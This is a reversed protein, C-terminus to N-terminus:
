SGAYASQLRHEVPRPRGGISVHRHIQAVRDIPVPRNAGLPFHQRVAGRLEVAEAPGKVRQAADGAARPLGGRVPIRQSPRQIGGAPQAGKPEPELALAPPQCLHVGRERSGRRHHPRPQGVLPRARQPPQRADGVLGPRVRVREPRERLVVIAVVPQPPQGRPLLPDPRHLGARPGGDEVIPVVLELLHVIRGARGDREAVTVIQAAVAGRGAADRHRAPAHRPGPARVTEVLEGRLGDPRLAARLEGIVVVAVQEAVAGASVLPVRLVPEHRDVVAGVAAHRPAVVREVAPDFLGVGGGGCFHDDVVQDPLGQAQDLAARALAPRGAFHAAVVAVALLPQGGAARGDGAEVVGGVVEAADAFQHIGGAGDAGAVVVIGVARAGLEEAIQVAVEPEGAM